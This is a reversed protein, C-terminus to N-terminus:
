DDLLLAAREGTSNKPEAETLLCSGGGLLLYTLHKIKGEGERGSGGHGYLWLVVAFCAPLLIRNSLGVRGQRSRTSCVQVRGMLSVCNWWVVNEDGCGGALAM